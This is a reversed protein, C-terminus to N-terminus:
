RETAGWGVEVRVFHLQDVRAEKVLQGIRLNGLSQRLAREMADRKGPDSPHVEVVTDTRESAEILVHGIGIELTVAVPEPTDFEPM